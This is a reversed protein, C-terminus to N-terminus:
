EKPRRRAVERDVAELERAGPVHGDQAQRGMFQQLAPDVPHEGPTDGGDQGFVHELLGSPATLGGGPDTGPDFM